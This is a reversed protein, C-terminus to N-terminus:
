LKTKNYMNEVSYIIFKSHLELLFFQYFSENRKMVEKASGKVLEFEIERRDNRKSTRTEREGINM